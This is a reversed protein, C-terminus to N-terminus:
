KVVEGIIIIISLLLLAFAALNVVISGPSVCEDDTDSVEQDTKHINM